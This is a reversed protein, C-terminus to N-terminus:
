DDEHSAKFLLDKEYTNLSEYGSANIKDLILDIEEQSPRHQMNPNIYTSSRQVPKPGKPKSPKNKFWQALKFKINQYWAFHAYLSKIYIFGFIGGGLHAINGGPNSSTISFFSTLLYFIAIYKLPVRFVGYLFIEYNPLLTAAGCVVGLVSASAGLLISNSGAFAPLLNYCLLYLMGGAIGGGIYAYLLRREGLYEKFIKGLYYLFLMNWLLHWFGNHMFQYTILTWPKALVDWFGSPISTQVKIAEVAEKGDGGSLFTFVHVIEVLLFAIVSIAILRNLMNNNQLLKTKFASM